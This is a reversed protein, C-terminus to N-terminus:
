KSGKKPQKLKKVVNYKQVESGVLDWVAGGESLFDNQPDIILLATSKPDIQKTM